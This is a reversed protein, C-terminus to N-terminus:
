PRSQFPVNRVPTTRDQGRPTHDTQRKPLDMGASSVRRYRGYASAMCATVRRVRRIRPESPAGTRTRNEVACRNSEYMASRGTPAPRAIVDQSDLFDPLHVTFGVRDCRFVTALGCLSFTLITPEVLSSRSTPPLCGSCQPKHKVQLCVLV